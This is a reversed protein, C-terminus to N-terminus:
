LRLRLCPENYYYYYNIELNHVSMMFLQCITLLDFIYTISYCSADRVLAFMSYSHVYMFLSHYNVFTNVYAILLTKILVLDSTAKTLSQTYTLYLKHCSCYM